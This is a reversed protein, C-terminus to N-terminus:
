TIGGVKLIGWSIETLVLIVGVWSVVNGEPPKSYDSKLHIPYGWENLEVREM